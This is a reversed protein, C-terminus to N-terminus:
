HSAVQLFYIFILLKILMLILSFTHNSPLNELFLCLRILKGEEFSYLLINGQSLIYESVTRQKKLM